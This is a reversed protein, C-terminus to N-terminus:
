IAAVIFFAGTMPRRPCTLTFHASSLQRGLQSRHPLHRVHLQRRRQGGCLFALNEGSGLSGRNLEM